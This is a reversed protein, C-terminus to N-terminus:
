FGGSETHWFLGVWDAMLRECPPSVFEYGLELSQRIVLRQDAAHRREMEQPFVQMASFLVREVARVGQPAEGHQDIKIVQIRLVGLRLIEVVQEQQRAALNVVEKLGQANVSQNRRM